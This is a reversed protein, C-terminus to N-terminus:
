DMAQKKWMLRFKYANKSTKKVDPHSFIYSM